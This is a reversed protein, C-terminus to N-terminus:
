FHNEIWEEWKGINRKHVSGAVVDVSGELMSFKFNETNVNFLAVDDQDEVDEDIDKSVKGLSKKKRQIIKGIEKELAEKIKLPPRATFSESRNCAILIDIPESKAESVNLIDVLFEATTDLEKPDTTADMVFVIVKIRDNNKIDEILKYHLKTSGPYDILSVSPRFNREINIQQSTVTNRISGTTILTFLATKGSGSPGALLVAPTNSQSVKIPNANGRRIYQFLLLSLTTLVVILGAILVKSDM